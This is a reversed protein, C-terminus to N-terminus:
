NPQTAERGAPRRPDFWQEWTQALYGPVGLLEIDAEINMQRPHDKDSAFRTGGAETARGQIVIPPAPYTWPFWRRGDYDVRYVGAGAAPIELSKSLTLSEKLLLQENSGMVQPAFTVVGKNKRRQFADALERETTPFHLLIPSPRSFNMEMIGDSRGLAEDIAGQDGATRIGYGKEVYLDAADEASRTITPLQLELQKLCTSLWRTYAQLGDAFRPQQAQVPLAMLVLTILMAGHMRIKAQYSTYM